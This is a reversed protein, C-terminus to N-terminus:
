YINLYMLWAHVYVSPIGEKKDCRKHHIIFNYFKDVKDSKYVRLDKMLEEQGARSQKKLIRDPNIRKVSDLVELTLADAGDHEATVMLACRELHCLSDANSLLVDISPNLWRTLTVMILPANHGARKSLSMMQTITTQDTIIGIM